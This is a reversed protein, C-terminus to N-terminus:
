EQGHGSASGSAVNSQASLGADRVKKVAAEAGARDDFPGARLLIRTSGDNQRRTELYAPVGVSKLKALWAHASSDSTFAGVSIVYRSGSAATEHNRAAAASADTTKGAAKGADNAGAALNASAPVAAPKPGPKVPATSAIGAQTQPERAHDATASAGHAMSAAALSSTATAATGTAATATASAGTEAPTVDPALQTVANPHAAAPTKPQRPINVAIDDSAPKPHTDLVMPLVVVAALVLAIAGVLRRRARQKEPLTPDLLSAQGSRREGDARTTKRREAGASARSRRAPAADKEQNGFSFLGM